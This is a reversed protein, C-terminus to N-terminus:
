PDYVILVLQRIIKTLRFIIKFFCALQIYIYIYIYIYIRYNNQIQFNSEKISFIYLLSVVACLGIGSKMEHQACLLDEVSSKVHKMQACHAFPIGVVELGVNEQSKQDFM